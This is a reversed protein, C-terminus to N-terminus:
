SESGGKPDPPLDFWFTMSVLPVPYQVRCRYGRFRAPNWGAADFTHRLLETYRPVDRTACHSLGHGLSAIPPTVEVNDLHFAPADPRRPGAAISHLTSTVVPDIGPYLDEHVFVDNLLVKSPMRPVQSEWQHRTAETAYRLGGGRVMMGAVLSVPTNVPPVSESLTYLYAHETRFLSLPPVPQTCFETLLYANGNEPDTRGDLTLIRQNAASRGDPPEGRRGFVTIPSSARLRRIGYKGLLYIQDVARGDASPHMIITALHTEAQFGLLSAMAKHISQTAGRINRRHVDEDLGALAADLATRGGSFEDILREFRRISEAARRCL